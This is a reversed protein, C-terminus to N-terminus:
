ANGYVRRLIEEEKEEPNYRENQIEREREEILDSYSENTADYMERPKIEYVRRDGSGFYIANEAVVPSSGVSGGTEFYWLMEGTSGDVAYLHEDASGVYVVGDNYAPSSVGGGGMEFRWIEQGEDADVAYMNQDGSVFMVMGDAVAASSVVMGRADFEWILSGDDADLAYLKGDLSGAYVLGDKVAAMNACFRDDATFRWIEDGTASDRAYFNHDQCGHYLVDGEVAPASEIGVELDVSWIEDGTSADFAHIVGGNSRGNFESSASGAPVYVVGDQATPSTGGIVGGANVRWNEEGTEASISYIYQDESGVFLDGDYIIPTAYVRGDTEFTWKTTVDTVPGSTPPASTNALDYKFMPYEEDVGPNAGEEAFAYVRGDLSGIYAEGDAVAPSSYIKGGTERSWLEEAVMTTLASRSGRTAGGDGTGDGPSSGLCGAASGAGAAMSALFARRYLRSGLEDSKPVM